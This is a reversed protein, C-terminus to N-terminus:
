DPIASIRAVEPAAFGASVAFGLRFSVTPLAAAPRMTRLAFGERSGLAPPDDTMVAVTSSVLPVGRLTTGTVNLAFLPVRELEVTVVPEFPCALTVRVVLLSVMTVALTPTVPVPATEGAVRVTVMPVSGSIIIERAAPELV